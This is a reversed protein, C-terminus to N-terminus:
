GNTKRSTIQKVRRRDSEYRSYRDQEFRDREEGTLQAVDGIKEKPHRADPEHYAVLGAMPADAPRAVEIEGSKSEHDVLQRSRQM